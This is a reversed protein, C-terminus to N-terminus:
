QLSVRSRLLSLSRRSYSTHIPVTPHPTGIVCSGVFFSSLILAPFIERSWKSISNGPLFCDVRPYLISKSNKASTKRSPSPRTCCSGRRRLCYYVVRKNGCPGGDLALRKFDPASSVMMMTNREVAFISSVTSSVLVHGRMTQCCSCTYM